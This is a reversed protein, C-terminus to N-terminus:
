HNRALARVRDADGTMALDEFIVLAQRLHAAATVPDGGYRHCEALGVLAHAEDDRHRVERALRLAGEHLELARSHDGTAAVAVAYHNLAWAENGRAGVRRHIDIAAELQRMAEQYDAILTGYQGLYGHAIAAGNDDDLLRFLRLAEHLDDAVGAHDGTSLKIEALSCLGYAEGRHDNLAHCIALGARLSQGAGAHDNTSLQVRALRILANAQGLPEDIEQYLRLAESLDGAAARHQGTMTRLYGRYTLATGRGRRDDLGECLELAAQVDREAGAYDCILLRIDAQHFRGYAQGARDGLRAAADTAAAHAALAEAWPGDTLLLTSVASVLLVGRRDTIGAAVAALLNAREVRLWAWASSQDPLAPQHAPAPGEPAPRPYPAVLLDARSAVYQYYDLVRDLAARREGACDRDALGRAHVRVLDHLRYRGAVPQLLLNHDVLEELRRRATEPDTDSLAAAAYADVDPGPLLGLQRFLTRLPGALNAYSLDFVTTLDREGDTLIGVRDREQGLLEALHRPSWAPRHRLWSAAIRLGLPLRGCLNTIEALFPDDAAAADPYGAVVRLLALADAPPLVELSLPDAEDLGKLRRRSTVLVLCGPGTPLLPRVQAEDAANDLVILTRTGTLRHRYLAAREEVDDPIRQGPENLARLLVELAEAPTRPPSARTHGHLDIFLQGDPYDAALRHAVQVALATKGVGGMGNIAAIVVTEGAAPRDDVRAGLRVLAALEALRGTFPRVGAPLRRPVRPHAPGPEPEVPDTEQRLIRAQLDRLRPGPDLGLEDALYVRARGYVALAEADRGTRRLATMYLETFRERAPHEAALRALTPLVQHERGLAIGTAMLEETVDLRLAELDGAIRDRLEPSASDQMVPGRWLGLAQEFLDARAAADGAGRGAAVLARFRQVDVADPDVQLSYGGRGSVLAEGPAFELAARLRAVHSHLSPRASAPAVGDWLLDVLRDAPVM